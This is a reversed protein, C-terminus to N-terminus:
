VGTLFGMRGGGGLTGTDSEQWRGSGKRGEEHGRWAVTSGKVAGNKQTWCM